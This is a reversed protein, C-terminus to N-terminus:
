GMGETLWDKLVPSNKIMQQLRKRGIQIRKRVTEESSNVIQAIETLGLEHVFRLQIAIQQKPPLRGILLLLEKGLVKDLLHDEAVSEQASPAQFWFFLKRRRENRRIERVAARASIKRAWTELSCEGRYQEMSHLIELLSEQVIDDVNERFQLAYSVTSLTADFVRAMLEKEARPDQNIVRTALLLDVLNTKAPENDVIQNESSVIHYTAKKEM